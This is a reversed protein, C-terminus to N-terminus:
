SSGPSPQQPSPLFVQISGQLSREENVLASIRLILTSSILEVLRSIFKGPCFYIGLTLPVAPLFASAIQLRWAIAGVQYFVLNASFGIM